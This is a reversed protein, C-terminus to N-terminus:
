VPLALKVLVGKKADVAFVTGAQSRASSNSTKAVTQDDVIYCVSGVQAQAILDASASNAFWMFYQNQPFQISASGGSAVLKDEKYVGIPILTNSAAGKKVLGTSTDFCALGGAYTQEATSLLSMGGAVFPKPLRSATLASM